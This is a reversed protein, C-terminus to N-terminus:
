RGDDARAAEQAKRAHFAELDVHEDRCAITEEDVRDILAQPADESIDFSGQTLVVYEAPLHEEVADLLCGCFKEHGISSLCEKEVVALHGDAVAQREGCAAVLLPIALTFSVIVVTKVTPSKM